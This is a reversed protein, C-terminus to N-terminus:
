EDVHRVFSPPFQIFSGSQEVVRRFNNARGIDIEFQDRNNTMDSLQDDFTRLSPRARHDDDSRVHMGWDRAEHQTANRCRNKLPGANRNCDNWVVTSSQECSKPANCAIRARELKQSPRDSPRLALTPPLPALRPPECRGRIGAHFRTRSGFLAQM